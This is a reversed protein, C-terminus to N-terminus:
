RQRTRAPQRRQPRSAGTSASRAVEPGLRRRV